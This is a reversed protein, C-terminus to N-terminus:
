LENIDIIKPANSFDAASLYRLASSHNKWGVYNMLSNLNWGNDTAWNAFGRRLSHSSYECSDGVGAFGINKRLIPIVSDEHLSTSGIKGWRNISRFIPGNDVQMANKLDLYASVPCLQNLKPLLHTVGKSSKDTKTRPIFVELGKESIHHCDEIRVSCLEDSRFAKWFGIYILARDRICRLKAVDSFVDTDDTIVKSFYRDLKSLTEIQLPKARKERVFHTEGIGKLVKKVMPAKTPDAFGQDQHWASLASLRTRLTNLSHSKAYSSLYEAVQLSTAPLYGGWEIEYHRISSKYSQRTNDRTAAQIYADIDNLKTM